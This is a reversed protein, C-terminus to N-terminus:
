LRAAALREALFEMVVREHPVRCHVLQLGEPRLLFRKVKRTLQWRVHRLRGSAPLLPAVPCTRPPLTFALSLVCATNSSRRRCICAIRSAEVRTMWGGETGPMPVPPPKLIYTSSRAPRPGRASSCATPPKTALALRVGPRALHEGEEVSRRGLDVGVDVAGLRLHESHGDRSKKVSERCRRGAAGM